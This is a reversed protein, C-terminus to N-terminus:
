VRRPKQRNGALVDASRPGAGFGCLVGATAFQLPDTGTLALRTPRECPVARGSNLTQAVKRQSSRLEWEEEFGSCVHFTRLTRDTRLMNRAPVFPPRASAAGKSMIAIFVNLLVFLSAHCMASM